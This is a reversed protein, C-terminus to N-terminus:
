AMKEPRDSIIVPRPQRALYREWAAVDLLTGRGVKVLVGERGATMEEAHIRYITSKGRGTYTKQRYLPICRAGGVPEQAPAVFPPPPVKRPPPPNPITSAGNLRPRMARLFMAEVRVLEDTDADPLSIGLAEDFAKTKRHQAIRADIDISQGVYVVDENEILFYVGRRRQTGFRM